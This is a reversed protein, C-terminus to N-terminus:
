VKVCDEERTLFSRDSESHEDDRAGTNDAPFATLTTKFAMKAEVELWESMNQIM